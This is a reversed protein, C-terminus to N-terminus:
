IARMKRTLKFDKADNIEDFLVEHVKFAMKVDMEGRFHERKDNEGRRLAVRYNFSNFFSNSWIPLHCKYKM